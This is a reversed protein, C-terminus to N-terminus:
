AHSCDLGLTFVLWQCMALNMALVDYGRKTGIKPIPVKGSQTIVHSYRRLYSNCMQCKGFENLSGTLIDSVM